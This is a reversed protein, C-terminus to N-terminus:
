VATSGDRGTTNYQQVARQVAPASRDVRQAQFCRCASSVGMVVRRTKDISGGLTIYGHTRQLRCRVNNGQQRSSCVTPTFLSWCIAGAPLLQTHVYDKRHLATALECSGAVVWRCGAASSRFAPQLLGSALMCAAAADKCTARGLTIECGACRSLTGLRGPLRGSAATM